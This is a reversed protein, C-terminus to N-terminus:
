FVMLVVNNIPAEPSANPSNPVLRNYSSLLLRKLCRTLNLPEENSIIQTTKIDRLQSLRKLAAQPYDSNPSGKRLCWHHTQFSIFRASSDTVLLLTLAPLSFPKEESTEAGGM